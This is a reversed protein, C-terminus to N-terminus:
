ELHKKQVQGLTDHMTFNFPHLGIGIEAWEEAKKFDILVNDSKVQGHRFNYLRALGQAVYARDETRGMHQFGTELLRVSKQSGKPIKMVSTLLDSFTQKRLSVNSKDVTEIVPRFLLLKRFTISVENAMFRESSFVKEKILESIYNPLKEEFSILQKLVQFAVPKHCIELFKFPATGRLNRDRTVVFFKLQCCLKDLLTRKDGSNELYGFILVQCLQVPLGANIFWKLLSLYMLLQRQDPHLDIESLATEVVKKIYKSEQNFNEAMIVFSLIDELPCLLEEGMVQLRGKFIIQEEESLQQKLLSNQASANSSFDLSSCINLLVFLASNHKIKQQQVKDEIASSLIDGITEDSNDLLVLVPPCSIRESRWGGKVVDNEEGLSRLSLLSDALIKIKDLDVKEGSFLLKANISVCRMEAKLQWLVHKAITSAGSGPEHVLQKTLVVENEKSLHVIEKRLDEV